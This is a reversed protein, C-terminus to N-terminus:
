PAAEKRSTVWRDLAWAGPGAVAISLFSAVYALGPELVPFPDGVHVGILGIAITSAVAAAAPRTLFGGIVLVSGIVQTLAGLWAFTRPFPFGMAIVLEIFHGEGNAVEAVKPLGHALLIAFGVYVRLILLGGASLYDLRSTSFVLDRIRGRSLRAAGTRITEDRM